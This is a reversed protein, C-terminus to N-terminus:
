ASRECEEVAKEIVAVADSFRCMSEEFSDGWM